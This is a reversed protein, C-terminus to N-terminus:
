RYLGMITKDLYDQDVGIYMLTTLEVDHNFIKQLAAANGWKKYHMYGFTKRMTHTGVDERYVIAKAADKLIRYAQSRHIPKQSGRHDKQRSRILYDDHDMDKIYPAIAKRLKPSIPTRRKKDTKIERRRIYDGRVDKVQLVLIDSVRLGM